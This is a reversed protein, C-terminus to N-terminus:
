FNFTFIWSFSIISYTWSTTVWRIYYTVVYFPDSSRPCVIFGYNNEFFGYCIYEIFGTSQFELWSEWEYKQETKFDICFYTNTHLMNLFSDTPRILQDSFLQINELVKPLFPKLVSPVKMFDPTSLPIEYTRLYQFKIIHGSSTLIGSKGRPVDSLRVFSWKRNWQNWGRGGEEEAFDDHESSLESWQTFSQGTIQGYLPLSLSIIASIWDPFTSYYNM